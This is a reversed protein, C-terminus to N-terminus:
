AAIMCRNILEDLKAVPKNEVCHQLLLEIEWMPITHNKGMLCFVMLLNEEELGSKTESYKDVLSRVKDQMKEWISVNTRLLLCVGMLSDARRFRM